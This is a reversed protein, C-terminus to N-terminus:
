TTIAPLYTVWEKVADLIAEESQFGTQFLRNTTTSRLGAQLSQNLNKTADIITRGDSMSIVKPGYRERYRCVVSLSIATKKALLHTPSYGPIRWWGSENM